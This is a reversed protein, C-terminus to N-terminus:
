AGAERARRGLERFVEEARRRCEEPSGDNDIVIDALRRKEGLPMQADIRRGAEGAELGDRDALRRLQEERRSSVVVVADFADRRGAELLLAAEVVAIGAPDRRALEELRRDVEALILPHLLSELLRRQGPDAFVIGALRARDLSGDPRLVERGFARAVAALGPTGPATVERAVRDADVVHAGLGAFVRAVASKGTAIGGTLGVRLV